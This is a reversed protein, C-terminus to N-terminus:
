LVKIKKISPTLTKPYNKFNRSYIYISSGNQPEIYVSTDSPLFLYEVKFNIPLKIEKVANHNDIVIQKFDNTDVAIIKGIYSDKEAKSLFLEKKANKLDLSCKKFNSAAEDFSHDLDRKKKLIDDKQSMEFELKRKCEKLNGNLNKNDSENIAMLMQKIDPLSLKDKNIEMICVDKGNVNGPNLSEIMSYNYIANDKSCPVFNNRIKNQSLTDVYCYDRDALFSKNGNEFKRFQSGDKQIQKIKNKITKKSQEDDVSNYLVACYNNKGQTFGEKEQNLLTMLIIVLVVLFVILLCLFLKLM